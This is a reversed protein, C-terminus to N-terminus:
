NSLALNGRDTLVLLFRLHTFSSQKVPMRMHITEIRLDSLLFIGVNKSLKVSVKVINIGTPYFDRFKIKNAGYYRVHVRLSM